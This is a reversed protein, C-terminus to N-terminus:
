SARPLFGTVASWWGRLVIRTVILASYCGVGSVVLLGLSFRPSYSAAAWTWHCMGKALMLSWSDGWWGQFQFSPWKTGLEEEPEPAPAAPRRGELLELVPQGGVSLPLWCSPVSRVWDGCREEIAVIELHSPGRPEDLRDKLDMTRRYALGHPALCRVAFERSADIVECVPEDNIVLPLWGKENRVWQGKQEQVPLIDGCGPGPIDSKRDALDMSRRYAVGHRGVCLVRLSLGSKPPASTGPARTPQHQQQQQQQQQPQQQQQQQPEASVHQSVSKTSNNFIRFGGHSSQGGSGQSAAEAFLKDFDKFPDHGLVEEFLNYAEQLGEQSRSSQEETSRGWRAASSSWWGAPGKPQLSGTLPAVQRAAAKATHRPGADSTSAAKRNSTSQLLLSQDYLKRAQPDSLVKYAQAISKFMSEATLRDEPNKDPHWRLAMKKYAQRVEAESASSKLALLGYYDDTSDAM